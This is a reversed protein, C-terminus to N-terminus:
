RLRGNMDEMEDESFVFLRGEVMLSQPHEDVPDHLQGLPCHVQGLQGTLVVGSGKGRQLRHVLLKPGCCGLLYLRV